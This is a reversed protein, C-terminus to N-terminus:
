SKAVSMAGHPANEDVRGARREHVVRGHRLVVVGDTGSAYFAAGWATEGGGLPRSTVAGPDAAPGEPREQAAGPGRAVAASPMPERFHRVTCRLEAIARLGPGTFRITRESSLSSGQRWGTLGLGPERASLRTDAAIAHGGFARTAALAPAVTRNAIRRNAGTRHIDREMPCDLEEAGGGSVTLVRGLEARM